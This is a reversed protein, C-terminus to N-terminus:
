SIFLCCKKEIVGPMQQTLVYHLHTATAYHMIYPVALVKKLNLTKLVRKSFAVTFSEPFTCNFLWLCEFISTKFNCIIIHLIVMIIVMIM